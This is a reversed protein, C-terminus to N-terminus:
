EHASHEISEPRIYKKVMEGYAANDLEPLEKAIAIIGWIQNDTHSKGFRPMGTMKLGHKVIWFMESANLEHQIDPDNLSPPSPYLGEAFEDRQYGPAGHCQRCMEHFHPFGLEQLMPDSFSPSVINKSHMAVSRERAEELLWSTIKWHPSDAGVNYSGSLLFFTIGAVIFVLALLFTKLRM